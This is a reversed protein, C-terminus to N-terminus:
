CSLRASFPPETRVLAKCHSAWRAEDCGAGETAECFRAYHDIRLTGGREKNFLRFLERITAGTTTASSGAFFDDPLAALQDDAM